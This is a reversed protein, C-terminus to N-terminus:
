AKCQVNLKLSNPLGHIASLAFYYQFLPSPPLIYGPTLYTYPTLEGLAFFDHGLVTWRLESSQRHIRLFRLAIKQTMNLSPFGLVTGLLVLLLMNSGIGNEFSFLRHDASLWWQWTSFYVDKDLLLWDGLALDLLDFRPAFTQRLMHRWIKWDKPPAPRSQQPWELADVSHAHGVLAYESLYKGDGTSIDSLTSVHSYLQCRSAARLDANSFGCDMFSEMLLTDNVRKPLLNGCKEDFTIKNEM